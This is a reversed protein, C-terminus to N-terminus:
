ASSLPEGWRNLTPDQPSPAPCTETPLRAKKDIACSCLGCVVSSGAGILHHMIHQGPPRLEPCAACAAKRAAVRAESVERFGHAGWRALAKAAALILPLTPAPAWKPLGAGAARSAVESDAISTPREAVLEHLFMPDVAAREALKPPLPESLGLAQALADSLSALAEAKADVRVRRELELSM